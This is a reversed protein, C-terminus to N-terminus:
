TCYARTPHEPSQSRTQRWGVSTPHRPSHFWELCQGGSSAKNKENPFRRIQTGEAHSYSTQGAQEPSSCSSNSM